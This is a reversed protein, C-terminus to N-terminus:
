RCPIAGGRRNVRFHRPFMITEEIQGHRFGQMEIEYRRHECIQAYQQYGKNDSILFCACHKKRPHAEM